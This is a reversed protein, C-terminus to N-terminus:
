SPRPPSRPSTAPASPRSGACGFEISASARTRSRVSGAVLTPPPNLAVGNLEVIQADGAATRRLRITTLQGWDVQVFVPYTAPDTFAGDIALGIGRVGNIIVCAATTAKLGDNIVFRVGTDAGAPVFSAIQFTSVLDTAAAADADAAFFNLIDSPSADSIRLKVGATFQQSGETQFNALPNMPDLVVGPSAWAAPLLANRAGLWRWVADPLAHALAAVGLAMGSKAVFSRRTISQQVM